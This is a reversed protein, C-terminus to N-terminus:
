QGDVGGREDADVVLGRKKNPNKGSLRIALVQGTHEENLEEGDYIVAFQQTVDTTEVDAPAQKIAAIGMNAIQMQFGLPIEEIPLKAIAGLMKSGLNAAQYKILDGSLKMEQMRLEARDSVEPYSLMINTLESVSIELATAASQMPLVDGFVLALVGILREEPPLKSKPSLIQLNSSM